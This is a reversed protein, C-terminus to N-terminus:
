KDGLILEVTLKVPYPLWNYFMIIYTNHGSKLNNRHVHMIITGNKNLLTMSVNAPPAGLINLEM